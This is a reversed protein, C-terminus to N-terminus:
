DKGLWDPVLISERATDSRAMQDRGSILRRVLKVASEDTMVQVGICHHLQEAVRLLKGDATVLIAAYKLATFVIL